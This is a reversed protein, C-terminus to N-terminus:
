QAKPLQPAPMQQGQLSQLLMQSAEAMAGQNMQELQEQSAGQRELSEVLWQVSAYPLRINDQKGTEPNTRKLQVTVLFGDTPIRSEKLAQVAREREVIAAELQNKYAEFNSIVQQNLLKFDAQKMRHALRNVTYEMNGYPNV